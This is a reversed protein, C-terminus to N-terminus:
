SQSCSSGIKCESRLARRHNWSCDRGSQGWRWFNHWFNLGSFIVISCMKCRSFAIYDSIYVACYYVVLM